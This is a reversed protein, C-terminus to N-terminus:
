GEVGVMASIRWTCAAQVAAVPQVAFSWVLNSAVSIFAVFRGDASIAVALRGITSYPNGSNGDGETGDSAVSVRTTQTTQRDHVFIDMFGNTDGVVLNSAGSQFAVFRGDASISPTSSERNGQTGDSAVSVRTTTGPAASAAPLLALSVVVLSLLTVTSFLKLRATPMASGGWVFGVLLGM